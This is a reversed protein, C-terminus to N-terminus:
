ERRTPPRPGFLAANALPELSARFEEVLAAAHSEFAYSGDVTGQWVNEVVWAPVGLYVVREPTEVDVRFVTASGEHDHFPFELALSRPSPVMAGMRPKGHARAEALRAPDYTGISPDDGRELDELVQRRAQAAFEAFTM